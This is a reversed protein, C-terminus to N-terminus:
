DQNKDRQSRIPEHFPLSEYNSVLSNGRYIQSNIKNLSTLLEELHDAFNQKTLPSSQSPNQHNPQNPKTM